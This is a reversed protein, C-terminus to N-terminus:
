TNKIIQKCFCPDCTAHSTSNKFRRFVFLWTVKCNTELHRLRKTVGLSM